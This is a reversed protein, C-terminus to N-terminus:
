LYTSGKIHYTRPSIEWNGNQLGGPNERDAIKMWHQAQGEGVLMHVLQYFDSCEPEYM